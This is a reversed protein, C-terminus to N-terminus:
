SSQNKRIESSSIDIPSFNNAWKFNPPLHLKESHPRPYIYFNSNNFLQEGQVWHEIQCSGDVNVAFLDAGCVLWIEHQPFQKFLLQIEDCTPLIPRHIATLDLIFSTFNYNFEREIMMKRSNNESLEPKDHRLGCPKVIIKDFLKSNILNKIISKHAITPPNFSGGFFALKM